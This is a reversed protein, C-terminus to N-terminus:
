NSSRLLVNGYKMWHRRWSKKAIPRKKILGTKRILVGKTARMFLVKVYVKGLLYESVDYWQAGYPAAQISNCLFIFIILVISIVALSIRLLV